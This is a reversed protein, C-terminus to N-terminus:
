QRPKQFTMFYVKDNHLGISMGKASYGITVAGPIVRNVRKRVPEGYAQIVEQMSSGMGIGETTKYPCEKVHKSDPKNMDGCAIMLVNGDRATIALGSYQLVNEQQFTPKGMIQKAKDLRDGFHVEGIGVGPEVIFKNAAAGAPLAQEDNITSEKVTSAEQNTTEKQDDDEKSGCGLTMLCILLCILLKGQKIDRM